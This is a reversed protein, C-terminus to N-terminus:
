CFFYKLIFMKFNILLFNYRGHLCAASEYFLMQGAELNHAHLNGDHDEIEIPWPESDEDHIVHVISSIVHTHVKDYHM